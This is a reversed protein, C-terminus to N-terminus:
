GLREWEVIMARHDDAHVRVPLTRGIRCEAAYNFPVRVHRRVLAGDIRLDLRVIPEAGISSSTSKVAVITATTATGRMALERLRAPSGFMRRQLVTWVVGQVVAVVAIIGLVLTAVFRATGDLLVLALVTLVIAGAGVLLMVRGIRGFTVTVRGDQGVRGPGARARRTERASSTSWAILATAVSVPGVLSWWHRDEPVM